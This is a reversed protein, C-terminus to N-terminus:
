ATGGAERLAQEIRAAGQADIVSGVHVIARGQSDIVYTEPLLQVGYRRQTGNGQEHVLTYDMRYKRAFSRADGILDQQDIGVFHVGRPQWRAALASLRKAEYTCGTCWSAWFNVVVPHGRLSSLDLQGPKSLYALRFDPAAPADGRDVAAAFHGGDDRHALQWVLLAVLGALVAVATGQLV